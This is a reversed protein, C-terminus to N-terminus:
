IMLIYKSDRQQEQINESSNNKKVIHDSVNKIHRCFMLKM